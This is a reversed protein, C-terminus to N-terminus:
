LEEQGGRMKIRYFFLSANLKCKQKTGEGSYVSSPITSPRLVGSPARMFIEFVSRPPQCMTKDAYDQEFLNLIVKYTNSLSSEPLYVLDGSLAFEVVAMEM